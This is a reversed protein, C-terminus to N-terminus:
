VVPVEKYHQNIKRKIVPNDRKKRTTKYAIKQNFSIKILHQMQIDQERTLSEQRVVHDM